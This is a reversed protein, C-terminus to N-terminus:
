CCSMCTSCVDLRLMTGKAIMIDAIISVLCEHADFFDTYENPNDDSRKDKFVRM